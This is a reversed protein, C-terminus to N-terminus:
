NSPTSDITETKVAVLPEEETTIAHPADEVKANISYATDPYIKKFEHQCNSLAMGFGTGTGFAIPWPKRKFILLSFVIGLAAGAGTKVLSDTVCRDVKEGVEDESRSVQIHAM